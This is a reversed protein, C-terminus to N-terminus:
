EEHESSVLPPLIRYADMKSFDVQQHTIQIVRARTDRQFLECSMGSPCSPSVVPASATSWSSAILIATLWNRSVSSSTTAKLVAKDSHQVNHLM